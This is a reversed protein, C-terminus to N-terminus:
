NALITPMAHRGTQEYERRLNEVSSRLRKEIAQTMERIQQRTKISPSSEIIAAQLMLIADLAIVSNIYAAREGDIETESALLMAKFFGSVMEKRIAEFGDDTVKQVAGSTISLENLHIIGGSSANHQDIRCL